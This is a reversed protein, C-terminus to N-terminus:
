NETIPEEQSFSYPFEPTVTYALSLSDLLVLIDKIQTAKGIYINM